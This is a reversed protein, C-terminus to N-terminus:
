TSKMIDFHSKKGSRNGDTEKNADGDEVLDLLGRLLSVHAVLVLLSVAVM